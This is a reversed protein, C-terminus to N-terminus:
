FLTPPSRFRNRRGTPVRTHPPRTPARIPDSAWLIRSRNASASACDPAAQSRDEGGTHFPPNVMQRAHAPAFDFQGDVNAFQASAPPCGGQAFHFQFRLPLAQSGKGAPPLRTPFRRDGAPFAPCLRDRIRRAGSHQPLVGFPSERGPSRRAFLGFSSAKARIRSSARRRIRELSRAM